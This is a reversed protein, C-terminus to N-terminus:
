LNAALRSGFFSLFSFGMNREKEVTEPGGGVDGGDDAVQQAVSSGWRGGVSASWRHRGGAGAM